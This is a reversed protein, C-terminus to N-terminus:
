NQILSSTHTHAMNKHEDTEYQLSSLKYSMYLSYFKKFEWGASQHTIVIKNM